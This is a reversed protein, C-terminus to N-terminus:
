SWNMSFTSFAVGIGMCVGEAISEFHDKHVRVRQIQSTAHMKLHDCAGFCDDSAVRQIWTGHHACLNGHRLVVPDDVVYVNTHRLARLNEGTSRDIIDCVAPVMEFVYPCNVLSRFQSLLARPRYTAYM